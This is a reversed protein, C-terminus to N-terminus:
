ENKTFDLLLDDLRKNNSTNLNLLLKKDDYIVITVDENQLETVIIDEIIEWDGGALGAGIKPMGIKKGSFQKKIEIMSSRIADYDALVEGAKRKYGYQTYANVIIPISTKTYSIKGLRLDPTNTNFDKDCEFAEPFKTKISLAIGAGMTKFCNCGHVIVDFKDTMKLIDGKLIKIM